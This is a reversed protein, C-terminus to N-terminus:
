VNCGEVSYYVREAWEGHVWTGVSIVTITYPIKQIDTAVVRYQRSPGRIDYGNTWIITSLYVGGDM